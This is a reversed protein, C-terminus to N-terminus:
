SVEKCAHNTMPATMAEALVRLVADRHDIRNELARGRRERPPGPPTDAQWVALPLRDCPNSGSRHDHRGVCSFRPEGIRDLCWYECVAVGGPAIVLARIDAAVAQLAACTVAPVLMFLPDAGGAPAAAMPDCVSAHTV